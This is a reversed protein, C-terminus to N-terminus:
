GKHVMRSVADNYLIVVNVFGPLDERYRWPRHHARGRATHFSVRLVM